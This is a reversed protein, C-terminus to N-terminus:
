DDLEDMLDEIRENSLEDKTMFSQLIVDVQQILSKKEYKPAYISGDLMYLRGSKEDLFTYNVFPGGMSRDSMRWLGQTFLAYRGKFNIETTKNYNDAITVYSVNDSARYFKQTLRDRLALVSDRNLMAPSANDIWHVFIWRELDSGPARRLWIFNEEPKNMALKFDIQCYILFGYDKLIQAELKENEYVSNYLKQYLRKNSLKQFYHLLNNADKKVESLLTPMDKATLIMVLQNKAWLDYRNIVHVSDNNVLETVNSDLISTLYQATYSGSNLPAAIIVNKKDKLKELSNISMRKLKFMHEPQPTYIIKGFVESLTAEMQEFESSDAVVFIQDELGVAPKKVNCASFILILPFLLIIKKM